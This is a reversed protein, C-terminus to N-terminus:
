KELRITGQRRMEEMAMRPKVRGGSEPSFSPRPSFMIIM